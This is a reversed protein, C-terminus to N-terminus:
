HPLLWLDRERSTLMLLCNKGMFKLGYPPDTIVTDIVNSKQKKLVGLCDDNYLRYRKKPDVFKDTM